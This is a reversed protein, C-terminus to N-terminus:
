HSPSRPVETLKTGGLVSLFAREDGRTIQGMMLKTSWPLTLGMHYRFPFPDLTPTAAFLHLFQTM